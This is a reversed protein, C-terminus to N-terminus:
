ANGVRQLRQLAVRRISAKAYPNKMVQKLTLSYQSLLSMLHIVLPLPAKSNLTLHLKIRENKIWDKNRTILEMTPVMLLQSKTLEVIEETTIRPNQVLHHFVQPDRSQGLVMRSLRDGRLALVLKKPRTMSRIKDFVNQRRAREGHEPTEAGRSDPSSKQPEVRDSM